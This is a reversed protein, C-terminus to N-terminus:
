IVTNRRGRGESKTCFFKGRVRSVFGLSYVYVGATHPACTHLAIFLYGVSSSRRPLAGRLLLFLFLRRLFCSSSLCSSFECLHVCTGDFVLLLLRTDLGKSWASVDGTM